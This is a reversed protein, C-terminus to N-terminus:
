HIRCLRRIEEAWEEHERAVQNAWEKINASEQRSSPASVGKAFQEHYTACKYLAGKQSDSLRCPKKDEMSLRVLYGIGFVGGILLIWGIIGLLEMMFLEHETRAM